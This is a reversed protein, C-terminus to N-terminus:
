LSPAGPQVPLPQGSLWSVSVPVPESPFRYVPPPALAFGVQEPQVVATPLAPLGRTPWEQGRPLVPLEACQIDESSSAPHAGPMLRTSIPGGSGVM